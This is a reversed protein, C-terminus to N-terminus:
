EADLRKLMKFLISSDQEGLGEDILRQYQKSMVNLCPLPTELSRAATHAINVDKAHLRAAIGAKFDRNIMKPAMLSMMPSGGMGSEIAEFVRAPDAGLAHAFTLSEAVGQINIVQAIQNCLKAIQGHGAEGVRTITKTYASIINSARECAEETGGIMSLLTGAEAAWVGGSVPADVFAVGQSGLQSAIEKTASPDITSHDIILADKKAHCQIAEPGTILIQRVDETGLVNTIIVDADSAVETLSLCPIAGRDILHKAQLTFVEQRRAYLKLQHGRNLLHAAMPLGMTGLGIFGITHTM